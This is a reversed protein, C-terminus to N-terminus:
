PSSKVNILQWATQDYPLNSDLSEVTANLLVAWPTGLAGLTTKACLYRGSRTVAAQSGRPRSYADFASVGTGTLAKLHLSYRIERAGNGTLEACLWLEGTASHAAYVRRLDTEPAYKHSFVDGTPDLQVPPIPRGLVDQWTSPDLPEGAHVVPLEVSQVPAFLENSRVFSEMLGRLFPLQSRYSQVAQGKTKVQDPTLNFDLWDPYIASLAPPPVLGAAPKLGRLVPYDPRHVLYTIQRPQYAPDRHSIEALAVRAFVALGWHDPHVDEPNPSVVLDPRYGDVISILDGLYDQGAYVARPDYTLPYPSRTAHSYPSRYPDAPSWNTQWLARSGRDPYSLFYVDSAPVGLQALADLSEQQRSQGLKIYDSAAPYIDLSQKETAAMYGDGNTAIVVRVEIGAQRAAQILGGSGLTEDDCHPALVLIRQVGDLSLPTLDSVLLPTGRRSVARTSFTLIALSLLVLLVIFLPRLISFWKKM